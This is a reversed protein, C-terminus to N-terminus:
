EKQDKGDIENRNKAKSCPIVFTFLVGISNLPSYHSQSPKCTSRCGGSEKVAMRFISWWAAALSSQQMKESIYLGRYEIITNQTVSFPNKVPQADAYM